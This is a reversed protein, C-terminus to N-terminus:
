VIAVLIFSLAMTLILLPVAWLLVLFLQEQVYVGFWRAVLSFRCLVVNILLSTGLAIYNLAFLRNVSNDSAGLAQFASNVTFNLAIVAFLGGIIVNVLEFTDIQFVGDEIRHLWIALMPILLSAFLPIYIAAIAPGPKRAIDLGATLVAHSEGYWGPSDDAKLNVFKLEWGDLSASGAPRSFDLDDQIFAFAVADTAYEKIALKIELKQQDFPFREVDQPTAFNGKIRQSLEVQGDAFLRLGTETAEPQGRLNTITFPPSWIKALEAAAAVGRLVLPPQSQEEPKRRLRPDEWRLRIDVTGKFTATNEEFGGIEVFAVAGKVALPLGKERPLDTAASAATLGLLWAALAFALRRV